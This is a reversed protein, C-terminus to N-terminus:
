MGTAAECSNGYLCNRGRAVPATIRTIRTRAVTTKDRADEAGPVSGLLEDAPNSSDDAPNALILLVVNAADTRFWFGATTIVGTRVTGVGVGVGRYTAISYM